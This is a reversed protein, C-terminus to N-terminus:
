VELVSEEVELENLSPLHHLSALVLLLIIDGFEAEDDIALSGEVANAQPYRALNVDVPVHIENLGGLITFKPM